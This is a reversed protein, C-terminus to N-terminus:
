VPYGSIATAYIQLILIHIAELESQIIEIDPTQGSILFSRIDQGVM